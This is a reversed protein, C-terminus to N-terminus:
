CRDLTITRLPVQTCRSASCRYDGCHATSATCCPMVFPLRGCARMLSMRPYRTAMQARVCRSARGSMPTWSCAARKSPICAFPESSAPFAGCRSTQLTFGCPLLLDWSLAFEFSENMEGGAAEWASRRWFLTEQPICDGWRLVREARTPVLWAGVRRDREDILMRHGYVVDVEPHRLLVRSCVCALRSAASRRLQSLGHDGRPILCLGPQHCEGPWSRPGVGM